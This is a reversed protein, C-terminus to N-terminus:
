ATLAALQANPLRTNYYAIRRIHGNLNESGGNSRAGIRMRDPTPMTATTDTTGAVGNLAHNVNNLEYAGALKILGGSTANGQSAQVVGGAVILLASASNMRLELRENSGPEIGVGLACRVVVADATSAEVVFTGAAQNYWSSFNAGSMVAQDANRTATAAGTIIPSTAFAGVELQACDVIYTAGSVRSTSSNASASMLGIRLTTGAANLVGTVTCRFFGNGLNTIASSAGSSAGGTIVAGATGAGLNFWARFFDTPTGNDDGLIRVWDTNGRKLIISFTSAVNATITGLQFSGAAGGSGETILCASNAAGDIGTQNRTVTMDARVWAAQTMDRSHLLLNVRQEEILLGRETLTVPDYDMRPVGNGVVELLGQGNFRTAQSARTFTIRPDFASTIFDMLMVPSAQERWRRRYARSYGSTETVIPSNLAM